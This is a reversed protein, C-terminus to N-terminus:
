CETDDGTIDKLSRYKVSPSSESKIGTGLERFSVSLEKRDLSLSKKRPQIPSVTSRSTKHKVGTGSRQQLLGDTESLVDYAESQSFSSQTSITTNHTPLLLTESTDLQDHGDGSCSYGTDAAERSPPSHSQPMQPQPHPEHVEALVTLQALKPPFTKVNDEPTVSDFDETDAHQESSGIGRLQALPPPRRRPPVPSQSPSADGPSVPSRKRQNRRVPGLRKHQQKPLTHPQFHKVKKENPETSKKQESTAPPTVLRLFTPRAELKKRPPEETTSKPPSVRLLAEEEERVEGINSLSASGRRRLIPRALPRKKELTTHSRGMTKTASSLHKLEEQFDRLLINRSMSSLADSGRAQLSRYRDICSHIKDCMVPTDAKISQLTAILQLLVIHLTYGTVKSWKTHYIQRCTGTVGDTWPPAM